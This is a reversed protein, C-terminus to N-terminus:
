LSQGPRHLRDRHQDGAQRSAGAFAKARAINAAIGDRTASYDHFSLVDVADALAEMSPESAMGITVPTTKDLQHLTAAIQRAIEFRKAQRDAPSGAANYDPENSADWFALAPEKSLDTVLEAVFARVQGSNISGDTNIFAATDGVTIMVGMHHRYATHALDMVNKRFAAKDAQWSANNVFVRLQNVKLKDAYSLNRKRRPLKITRGITPRTRRM